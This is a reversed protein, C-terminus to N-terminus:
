GLRRLDHESWRAPEEVEERSLETILHNRQSSQAALRAASRGDRRQAGLRQQQEM